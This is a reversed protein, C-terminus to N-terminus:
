QKWLKELTFFVFSISCVIACKNAAYIAHVNNIATFNCCFNIIASYFQFAKQICRPLIIPCFITLLTTCCLFSQDVNPKSFNPYIPLSCIFSLMTQCIAILPVPCCIPSSCFIFSDFGLFIWQCSCNPFTKKALSHFIPFSSPQATGQDYRAAILM